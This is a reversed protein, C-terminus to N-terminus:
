KSSGVPNRPPQIEVLTNGKGRKVLRLFSYSLSHGTYERQLAGVKYRLGELIFMDSSGHVAPGMEM